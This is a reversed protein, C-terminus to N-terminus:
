AARAKLGALVNKWATPYLVALLVLFIILVWLASYWTQADSPDPLLEYKKHDGGEHGGAAGGHEAPAGAHDAATTRTEVDVKHQQAAATARWSALAAAMALTLIVRRTMRSEPTIGTREFVARPSAVRAGGTSAIRRNSGPSRAPSSRAPWS